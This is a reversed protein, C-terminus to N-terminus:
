SGSKIFNYTWKVSWIAAISLFLPIPEWSLGISRALAAMSFYLAAYGLILGVGAVMTLITRFFEKVHRGGLIFTDSNM